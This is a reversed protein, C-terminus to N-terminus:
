FPNFFFDLRGFRVLLTPLLPHTFVVLVLFKYYLPRLSLGENVQDSHRECRLSCSIFVPFFPHRIFMAIFMPKYCNSCFLLLLIAAFNANRIGSSVFLCEVPSTPFIFHSSMSLHTNNNNPFGVCVLAILSFLLKFLTCVFPFFSCFVHFFNQRWFLFKKPLFSFRTNLRWACNSVSSSSSTFRIYIDHNHNPM